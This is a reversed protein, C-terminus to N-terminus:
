LRIKLTISPYVNQSYSKNLPTYLTQNSFSLTAAMKKNHSSSIFLPISIIDAIIGCVILTGWLGTKFFSDVGTEVDNITKNTENNFGITGVIIFTTGMGLCIWGGMKQNKSKDLYFEKLQLHKTSDLQFASNFLAFTNLNSPFAFGPNESKANATIDDQPYAKQNVLILLLPLISLRSLIIKSNM